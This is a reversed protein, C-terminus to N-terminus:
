RVFSEKVVGSGIWVAESLVALWVSPSVWAGAEGDTLLVGLWKVVGAVVEVEV